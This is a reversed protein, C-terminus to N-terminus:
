SLRTCVGFDRLMQGVVVMGGISPIFMICRLAWACWRRRAQGVNRLLGQIIYVRLFPLVSGGVLWALIWGRQTSTSEHGQFRSLAGVIIVPSLLTGLFLLIGLIFLAQAFLYMPLLMVVVLTCYVLRSRPRKKIWNLPNFFRRLRQVNGFRRYEFNRVIPSTADIVAVVCDFRGGHHREADVLDPSSVLFMCPYEPAVLSAALNAISMLAYPVVTLGFAAYGYQDIQNGRAQYVTSIAWFAQVLGIIGKPVNYTCPLQLESTVEAWTEPSIGEPRDCRPKLPFNRPVHVIEYDDPLIIIGQIKRRKGVAPTRRGPWWSQNRSKSETGASGGSMHVVSNGREAQSLSGLNDTRKKVVTCLAECAAALRYPEKRLRLSALPLLDSLGVTLGTIPLFLAEMAFRATDIWSRGPKSRVTAAHAFYNGLFFTIYDIWQPPFCILDPENHNTTGAPVSVTFNM